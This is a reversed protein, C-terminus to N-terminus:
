NIAKRTAPDMTRFMEMSKSLERMIEEQKAEIEEDKMFYDITESARKSPTPAETDNDITAITVLDLDREIASKHRTGKAPPKM